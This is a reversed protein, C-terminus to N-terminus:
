DGVIALSGWESIASRAGGRSFTAAQECLKMRLLLLIRCTSAMSTLCVNATKSIFNIAHCSRAGQRFAPASDRREAVSVRFITPPLGDDSVDLM